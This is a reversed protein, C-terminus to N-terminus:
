HFEQIKSLNAHLKQSSFGCIETICIEHPNRQFGCLDTLNSCTFMWKQASSIRDLVFSLKGLITVGLM